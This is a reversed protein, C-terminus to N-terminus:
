LSSVDLNDMPKVINTTNSPLAPDKLKEASEEVKPAIVKGEEKTTTYKVDISPESKIGFEDVSYVTYTYTKLPEVAPDIFTKDIIKDFEESSSNLWGLKTKKIVSFTKVRPDNSNWKLELNDSVMQAEVLSPSLPKVLSKGHISKVDSKSELGDKDVVSVRYFYDKGDEELKDIYELAKVKAILDYDDDISEARYVKYHAFDTIATASWTVKIHKAINDTAVINEVQKPLSKTVVKVEISPESLVDNYTLVRVRYKYVFRDKLNGDIYEAQLRGNIVKLKHWKDDELTKRELIYKQVIQNTHPRWIIKASRPMDAIAHIWTVSDLAPLTEVMAEKSTISESKQTFTKFYYAYKSGPKVDEDVYHTVFRSEITDLLSYESDKKALDQKFVYIGNVRPDKISKWEFGVAKMDVFIGKETLEVTQLTTDVVVKDAPKPSIGECGSFILISVTLFTALNWLKM